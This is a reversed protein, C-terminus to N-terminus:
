RALRVISTNDDFELRRIEGSVEISFDQSPQTVIFRVQERRDNALVVTVTLPLDFAAAPQEVRVTGRGAGGPRWTVRLAPVDAGLIWRAFFRDVPFSTEAQFAGVVDQYGAVNFRREAFLRRLGRGFAADGIVQQLMNLVVATKNYVVGRFARADARLHGVRYGLYVPGERSLSVATDRMRRMLRGAVVPGHISEVYRWAVYQAFGESIWQEHYNRPGVAQGWWQHAVEHALFFEPADDFAVPDSSWTFPTAPHPENVLAFYAPSHGGPLRDRLAAVTFSSYPADGVLKAYFALIGAVRDAEIQPRTLDPTSVVQVPVVGEARGTSVLRTVLFALYRVPEAARYEVTRVREASGGQDADAAESTAEAGREGSAVVDYREPMTLRLSATAHRRSRPQPYWADRNSYLYRPEIFVSVDLAGQDGDGEDPAVDMVERELVQPLLRGHYQVDLTVADGATMGAPLGVVVTHQGSPRLALLGGGDPSSVSSVVLSEALRLLVSAVPRRLV